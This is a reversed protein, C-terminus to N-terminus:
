LEIKEEELTVIDLISVTKNLSHLIFLILQALM